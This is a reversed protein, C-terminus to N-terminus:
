LGTFAQRDRAVVKEDSEAPTGDVWMKTVDCPRAYKASGPRGFTLV